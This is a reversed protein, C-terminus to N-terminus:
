RPAGRNVTSPGSLLDRLAASYADFAARGQRTLAISTRSARGNGTTESTLYGADELKRLDPVDPRDAAIRWILEPTWTSRARSSTLPSIATSIAGAPAVM